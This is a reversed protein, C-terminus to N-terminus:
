CILLSKANTVCKCILFIDGRSEARPIERCLNVRFSHEYSYICSQKPITDCVIRRVVLCCLM